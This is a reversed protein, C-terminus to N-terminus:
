PYDCENMWVSHHKGTDLADDTFIGMVKPSDFGINHVHKSNKIITSNSIDLQVKESHLHKGLKM